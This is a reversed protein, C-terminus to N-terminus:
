RRMAKRVRAIADHLLAAEVPLRYGAPSLGEIPVAGGAALDSKNMESAVRGIVKWAADLYKRGMEPSDNRLSDSVFATLSNLMATVLDDRTPLTIVKPNALIEQPTPINALEAAFSCFMGGTGLGVMGCILAQTVETEPGRNVSACAALLRAAYDWTRPSPWAESMEPSGEAPPAYLLDNHRDLFSVVQARAQAIGNEWNAALKPMSMPYTGTLMGERWNAMVPRASLHCYRNATPGSLERGGPALEPPNILMVVRTRPLLTDGVIRDFVLKLMSAEMAQSGTNGEDIVLLSDGGNALDLAWQWPAKTMNGNENRVPISLDEPQMASPNIEAYRWNMLNAFYRLQSTKGIGAGGTIVVPVNAQVAIALAAQTRNDM